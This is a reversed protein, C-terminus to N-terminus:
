ARAAERRREAEVSDFRSCDSRDRVLGLEALRDTLRDIMSVDGREGAAILPARFEEPLMTSVLRRSAPLRDLHRNM